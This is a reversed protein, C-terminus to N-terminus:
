VVGREAPFSSARGRERVSETRSNKSLVPVKGLFTCWLRGFDTREEPGIPARSSVSAPRWSLVCIHLCRGVLLLAEGIRRVHRGVKKHPVFSIYALMYITNIWWSFTLNMFNIRTERRNAACMYSEYKM